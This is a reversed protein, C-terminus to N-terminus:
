GHTQAAAENVAQHHTWDKVGERAGGDNQWQSVAFRWTKRFWDMWGIVSSPSRLLFSSIKRLTCLPMFYNGLATIYLLAFLPLLFKTYVAWHPSFVLTVLDSQPYGKQKGVKRSYTYKLKISQFFTKNQIFVSPVNRPLFTAEAIKPFFLDEVEVLFHRM